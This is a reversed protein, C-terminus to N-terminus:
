RNDNADSEATQEGSDDLMKGQSENTPRGAGESAMTNSSQLPVFRETFNFVDREFYNLSEVEDPRLGISACYLSITPFGYRAADLYQKSMEERSYPSIDLISIRFNKGVSQSHFIRNLAAEISLVISYTMSQDSKISLMLASSSAKTNNFLLSSVGAASWLHNEAESINDVDGTGGSKDFSIKDIAMPSLVSGVEEPLVGDLNQWFEVAKNYDMQWNGNADIGLKMVLLAYNELETKTLKLDEYDSLDYLNRLIGAFPPLSYDLIEKNAKVAFSFPPDLDQYRLTRNGQYINYKTTFEEPYYQLLTTDSDFYSFDFTVNFVNDTLSSISCYDPPLQQFTLKDGLQRTTCFYTDERWCVTLIDKCQTKIDFKNVYECAKLFRKRMDKTQSTVDINYPVIAYDFDNLGVFYQIIRRFHSSAGYMYIIANRLYKENRQPDKLYEVIQDKTYKYFTKSKPNNNLDRWILKQIAKFNARWLDSFNFNFSKSVESATNKKAPPRGRKKQTTNKKEETDPVM